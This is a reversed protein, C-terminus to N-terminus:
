RNYEKKMNSVTDKISSHMEEIDFDIQNEIRNIKELAREGISAIDVALRGATDDNIKKSTMEKFKRMVFWRNHSVSMDLAALVANSKDRVDGVEFIHRLKKGIVDCYEYNFKGYRAWNCFEFVLRSFRSSDMQKLSRLHDVDIARLLTDQDGSDADNELFGVIDEWDDSSLEDIPGELKELQDKAKPAAVQPADQSRSVASMLASRLSPIDDFRKDPEEVTCREVVAGISGSASVQQYPLRRRKEAAIDHLICGFSFIDAQEPANRFEELMEPASYQQSAWVSDTSTITTTTREEPLVLGFDSLVWRDELRLINSPKLDRHVYGLRHLEELGELIQLLPETSFGDKQADREVQDRYDEEALPMLFRPPDHSLDSEVIPMINPNDINSQVRVERRFRRKM